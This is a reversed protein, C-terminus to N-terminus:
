AALHSILSKARTHREKGKQIPLHAKLIYGEMESM